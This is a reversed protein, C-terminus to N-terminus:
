SVVLGMSGIVNATIYGYAPSYKKFSGIYPTEKIAPINITGVGNEFHVTQDEVRYTQKVNYPTQATFVGSGSRGSVGCTLYLICDRIKCDGTYRNNNVSLGICSCERPGAPIDIEVPYYHFDAPIYTGPKYTKSPYDMNSFVYYHNGGFTSYPQHTDIALSGLTPLETTETVEISTVTENVLPGTLSLGLGTTPNKMVYDDISPSTSSITEGVFAGTVGFITKGSRINEAKLQADPNVTVQTLGDYGADPGIVTPLTEPTVTKEQLVSSPTEPAKAGNMNIIM